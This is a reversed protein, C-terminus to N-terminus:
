VAYGTKSFKSSNLDFCFCPYLSDKLKEGGVKSIKKDEKQRAILCQTENLFWLATFDQYLRFTRLPKKHDQLVTRLMQLLVEAEVRGEM